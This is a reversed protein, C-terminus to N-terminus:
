AGLRLAKVMSVGNFQFYDQMFTLTTKYNSTSFTTFAVTTSSIATFPLLMKMTSLM